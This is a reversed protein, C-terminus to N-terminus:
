LGGRFELPEHRKQGGEAVNREYPVRADLVLRDTAEDKAVSFRGNRYPTKLSAAEDGRGESTTPSVGM